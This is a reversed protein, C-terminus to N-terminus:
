AQPFGNPYASKFQKNSMLMARRLQFEQGELFTRISAETGSAPGEKPFPRNLRLEWKDKFARLAEDDSPKEAKAKASKYEAVSLSNVVGDKDVTYGPRDVMPYLYVSVGNAEYVVEIKDLDKDLLKQWKSILAPAREPNLQIVAAGPRIGPGATNIRRAANAANQNAAQGGAVNGVDAM